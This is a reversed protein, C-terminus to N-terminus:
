EPAGVQDTNALQMYLIKTATAVQSDVVEM